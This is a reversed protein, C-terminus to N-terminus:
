TRLSPSVNPTPQLRFGGAGWEKKTIALGLWPTDLNWGFRLNSLLHDLNFSGISVSSHFGDRLMYDARDADIEGSVISSLFNQVMKGVKLTSDEDM